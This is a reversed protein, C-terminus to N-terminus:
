RVVSLYPDHRKQAGKGFMGQHQAASRRSVCIEISSSKSTSSVETISKDTVPTGNVELIRDGVQLMTSDPRADM